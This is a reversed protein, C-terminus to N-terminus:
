SSRNASKELEVVVEGIEITEMEERKVGREEEQGTDAKAESDIVVDHKPTM